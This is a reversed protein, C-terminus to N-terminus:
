KFKSMSYGSITRVERHYTSWRRRNESQQTTIWHWYCAKLKVKLVNNSLVSLHHLDLNIQNRNELFLSNLHEEFKFSITTLMFLIKCHKLIRRKTDVKLGFVIKVRFLQTCNLLLHVTVERTAERCHWCERCTSISSFTFMWSIFEELLYVHCWLFCFLVNLCTSIIIIVAPIRKNAFWLSYLYSDYFFVFM